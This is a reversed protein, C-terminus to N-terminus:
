NKNILNKLESFKELNEFLFSGTVFHNASNKCLKITENNIGGDIEIIAKQNAIKKIEEIRSESGNIYKQGGFGPEVSMVTIKDSMKILDIYKQLDTKPKIAIGAKINKSKIFQIIKKGEEISQAECHFTIYTVKKNVIKEVMEKVNQVMLHCSVICGKDILYDLFELKLFSTNPVFQNDMVDYHIYKIGHKLCSEFQKKFETENKQNLALVSLEVIKEM